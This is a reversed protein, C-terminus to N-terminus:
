VSIVNFFITTALGSSDFWYKTSLNNFLPLLATNVFTSMMLKTAVSLHYKTYSSHKEFSSLLRIIFTLVWNVIVAILSALIGVLRILWVLYTNSGSTNEAEGQLYRKLQGLGYYIGFVM